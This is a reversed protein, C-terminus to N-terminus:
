QELATVRDSLASLDSQLKNILKLLNEDLNDTGVNDRADQDDRSQKKLQDVLESIQQRLEAIQADYDGTQQQPRESRTEPIAAGLYNNRSM